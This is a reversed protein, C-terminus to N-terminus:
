PRFQKPIAAAEATSLKRISQVICSSQFGSTTAVRLDLDLPSCILSSGRIYTILRADPMRVSPCAFRLDVAYTENGNVKLYLKSDDAARWSSWQNSHFCSRAPAPAAASALLAAMCAAAAFLFKKM